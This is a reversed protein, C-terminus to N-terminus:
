VRPTGYDYFGRKAKRGLNGDEVMTRLMPRPAYNADGTREVLNDMIDVVVDLGILDALELPGMPHNLGLRIAEDIDHAPAADEELSRVAENILPMLVRNVVFAPRSKVVVPVKGLSRSFTELWKLTEASTTAPVSVEVLRMRTAPNFFHLCGFREPHELVGALEDLPLGSTNTALVADPRMAMEASRLWEKKSELEEVIAEIVLDCRSLAGMETGTELHRDRELLEDEDMVRMLREALKGRARELSPASRAIWVVDHGTSLLLEVLGKGMIGTGLIGVILRDAEDSIGISAQQGVVVPRDFKAILNGGDRTELLACWYPTDEHGLSPVSVETVALVTGAASEADVLPVDCFTCNMLEYSYRAGCSPCSKHSM